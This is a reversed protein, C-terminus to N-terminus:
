AASPKPKNRRGQNGGNGGAAAPAAAKRKGKSGAGEAALLDALRVLQGGVKANGGVAAQASARLTEVAAAGLVARAGGCKRVMGEVAHCTIKLAEVQRQPKAFAVGDVAAAAMKALPKANAKMVAPLDNDNVKLAVDVLAFAEARLYETRAGAAQDLLQPLLGAALVPLRRLLEVLSARSLRCKKKDFFDSVLAAASETAAAPLAAVSDAGAIAARQLFQYVAAAAALVRKDQSRTALYMARRLQAALEEQDVAGGEPRSKCLRHQLLGAVREALARDGGPKSAAALTTLLPIPAALLLPSTPCKKVFSELLALVRMKFNILEQRNSKAGIRGDRLTSFYAALKADMRFMQEDTADDIGDGQESTAQM